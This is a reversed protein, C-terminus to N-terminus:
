PVLGGGDNLFESCSGNPCMRAQMFCAQDGNVQARMAKHFHVGQPMNRPFAWGDENHVYIADHATVLITFTSYLTYASRRFSQVKSADDGQPFAWGDEIHVYIADHATVLITFTSYIAYACHVMRQKNYGDKFRIV